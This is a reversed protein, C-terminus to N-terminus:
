NIFPINVQAPDDQIEGNQNFRSGHCPCEWSKDAPNWKLRCGMHPCRAIGPMVGMALGRVSEVSHSVLRKASAKFNFRQPSFVDANKNHRGLVLDSLLMASVMSSTMGWKQFGTAVYWHPTSAGFRGIYPIGDLSICDQASWRAAESSNIWLHRATRSMVEYPNKKPLKGTRHSGYGLLLLDGANRLSYSDPDIGLYMGSLKQADSLALVYSREQYMKAFYFGPINVFPYHCAFIIQSSMVKGRNTEIHSGKVSLVKTQEYVKLTSSIEKLFELPNFQAQGDFRVAGNVHFPLETHSVFESPIGLMAASDAERRLPEPKSVTYLYAPLEEYHCSINLEQILKKYEKVAEQNARAYQRAREEGVSKILKHYILGHQSTIKATTNKTQGSGIRDAELVIVQKGQKQLYYAILIGAMGGGIVTVEAKLNGPLPHRRPITTTETWISSM